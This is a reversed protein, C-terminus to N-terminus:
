RAPRRRDRRGLSLDEFSAIEEKVGALLREVEAPSGKSCFALTLLTLPHAGMVQALQVVKALSPDAGSNELRSIYTRGSVEYFDEQSLNRELRVARLAKAFNPAPAKTSM